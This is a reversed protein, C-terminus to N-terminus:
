MIWHVFKTLEAPMDGRACLANKLALDHISDIGLQMRLFDMNAPTYGEDDLTDMIQDLSLEIVITGHKHDHRCHTFIADKFIHECGPFRACMFTPINNTLLRENFPIHDFYRPKTDSSRYQIYNTYLPQTVRTMERVTLEILWELSNLYEIPMHIKDILTDLMSLIEPTPTDFEYFYM